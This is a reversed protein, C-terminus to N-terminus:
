SLDDEKVLCAAKPPIWMSCHSFPIGAKGALDASEVRTILPTVPTVALDVECGLTLKSEYKMSYAFILKFHTMSKFTFAIVIFRKSFFVPFFFTKQLRLKCLSKKSLAGFM